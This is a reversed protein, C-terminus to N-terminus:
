TAISSAITLFVLLQHLFEARAGRPGTALSMQFLLGHCLASESGSSPRVGDTGTGDGGKEAHSQGKVWPFFTSDLM